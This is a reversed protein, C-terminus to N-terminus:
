GIKEVLTCCVDQAIDDAHSHSGTLRWAIRHIRDYHRRLLAEFAGRDGRAAREVLSRDPDTTVSRAGAGPRPGPLETTARAEGVLISASDSGKLPDDQRDRGIAAQRHSARGARIRPLPRLIKEDGAPM